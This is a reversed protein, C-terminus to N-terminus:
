APQKAENKFFESFIRRQYRRPIKANQQHKQPPNPFFHANLTTKQHNSRPPIRPSVHHSFQRQTTALFMGSKKVKNKPWEWIPFFQRAKAPTEDPLIPTSKEGPVIPRRTALDVQWPM